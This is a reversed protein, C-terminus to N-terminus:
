YMSSLINSTKLGRAASSIDSRGIATWCDGACRWVRGGGGGCPTKMKCNARVCTLFQSLQLDMFLYQRPMLHILIKILLMYLVEFSNQHCVAKRIYKAVQTASFHKM